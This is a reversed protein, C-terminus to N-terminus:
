GNPSNQIVAEINSRPFRLNNVAGEAGRAKGGGKFFGLFSERGHGGGAARERGAVAFVVWLGPNRITEM